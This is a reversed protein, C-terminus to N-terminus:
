RLRTGKAGSKASRKKTLKDKIM